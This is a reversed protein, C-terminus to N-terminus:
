GRLSLITVPKSINLLLSFLLLGNNSELCLRPEHFAMIFVTHFLRDLSCFHRQFALAASFFATFAVRFLKSQLASFQSLLGSSSPLMSLVATRHADISREQRDISYSISSWYYPQKWARCKIANQANASPSV